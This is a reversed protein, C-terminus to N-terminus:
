GILSRGRAEETDRAAESPLIWRVGCCRANRLAIAIAISCPRRRPPDHAQQSM